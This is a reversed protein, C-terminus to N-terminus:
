HKKGKPGPASIQALNSKFERNLKRDEIVIYVADPPAQEKPVAFWLSGLENPSKLACFGYLRKGNRAYVDVWSRSSKTNVGCPPLDPASAFMEEPYESRNFVSLTYRTWQAGNAEYNEKGTFILNPQPLFSQAAGSIAAFLSLIWLVRALVAANRAVVNYRM